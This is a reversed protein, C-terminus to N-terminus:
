DNAFTKSVCQTALKAMSVVRLHHWCRLHVKEVASCVSSVLNLCSFSAAHIYQSALLALPYPLCSQWFWSSRRLLFSITALRCFVLITVDPLRLQHCLSGFHKRRGIFILRWLRCQVNITLSAFQMVCKDGCSM